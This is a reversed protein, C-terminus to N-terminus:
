RAELERWLPRLDPDNLAMPKMRNRNGLRFATDLWKRAQNMDGLQCEYCALNYPIIPDAPFKDIIQLLNQRAESTRKLEHLSFSRNVWGVADESVMETLTGAIELSELWKKEAALIGWRVKLVEPHLQLGGPIKALEARSEAPCGLELWGQASELHRNSPFELSQNM